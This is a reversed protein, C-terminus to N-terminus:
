PNGMGLLHNWVWVTLMATAMFILTAAISDKVGRGMGCVGHGSTCGGGLRTGFGVVLGAFIMLAPSGNSQYAATRPVLAFLLGAGLILGLIMSVRWATDGRHFRLIRGFVGSIGPIKHTIAFALLSGAGILAGGALAMLAESPSTM